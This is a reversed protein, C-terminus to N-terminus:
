LSDKKNTPPDKVANKGTLYIKQGEKLVFKKGAENYLVYVGSSQGELWEDKYILTSLDQPFRDNREPYGSLLAEKEGLYTIPLDSNSTYQVPEM